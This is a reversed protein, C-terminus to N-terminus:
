HKQHWPQARRSSSPEDDPHLLGLRRWGVAALWTQPAVVPARGV